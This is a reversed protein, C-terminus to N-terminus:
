LPSEHRLFLIALIVLIPAAAMVGIAVARLRPGVHRPLVARAGIQGTFLVALFVALALFDIHRTILTITDIVALLGCGAGLVTTLGLARPWFLNVLAMMALGAALGLCLGVSTSSGGFLAIPAFVGPLVALLVAGNVPVIEAADITALRWLVLTGGLVLAVITLVLGVDTDSFRPLGIWIAVLLSATALLVTTLRGDSGAFGFSALLDCLLGALTAALVIYFIKNTAGVPPFTPIKDYTLYYAVIFVIPAVLSAPWPTRVLRALLSFTLGAVLCTGIVPSFPSDLSSGM